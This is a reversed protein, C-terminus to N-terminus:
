GHREMIADFDDLYSKMRNEYAEKTEAVTIYQRKCHRQSVNQHEVYETTRKKPCYDSQSITSPHDSYLHNVKKHSQSDVCSHHSEILSM